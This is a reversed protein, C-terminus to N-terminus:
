PIFDPSFPPHSLQDETPNAKEITQKAEKDVFRGMQDALKGLAAWLTPDGYPFWGSPPNKGCEAVAMVHAVHQGLSDVRGSPFPTLTSIWAAHIVHKQCDWEEGNGELRKGAVGKRAQSLAQKDILGENFKEAAEIARRTDDDILRDDVNNRILFIACRRRQQDTARKGRLLDVRDAFITGGAIS